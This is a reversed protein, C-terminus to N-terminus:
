GGGLREYAAQLEIFKKHALEKFEEGLHAVRDPHYKKVLELYAKRIEERSAGPSVGLIEHDGKLTRTESAVTRRRDQDNVLLLSAVRDIFAVEAPHLRGDARAIEDLCEMLLLRTAYDSKSRFDLCIADIDLPKELFEKLLRKVVELSEEGYGLRESFFRRVAQVEEQKIEDGDAKLAGAIIGVLNAVFFFEQQQRRLEPDDEDGGMLPSDKVFHGIIGGIVAGLPGGGLFGLGAGILKGSVGM